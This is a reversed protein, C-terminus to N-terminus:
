SLYEDDDDYALRLEDFSLSQGSELKEKAKSKEKELIIKKKKLIESKSFSKLSKFIESRQTKSLQLEKSNTKLTTELERIDDNFGNMESFLQERQKFKTNFVLKKEDFSAKASERSKNITDLNTGIQKIKKFLASLEKRASTSKKWINYKKQLTTINKILQKEEQRSLQATQIKWEIEKIQKSINKTNEKKNFKRDTKSTQDKSLTDNEKIGDNTDNIQTWIQKKENLLGQRDKRYIGVEGYLPELDAQHEGLQSTITNIEDRMDLRKKNLSKLQTVLNKRSDLLDKIKTTIEDVTTSELESM